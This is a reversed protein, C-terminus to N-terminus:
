ARVRSEAMRSYPIPISKRISISTLPQKKMDHRHICADELWRNM